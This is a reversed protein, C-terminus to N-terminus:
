VAFWFFYIALCHSRSIEIINHFLLIDFFILIKLLLHVIKYQGENLENSTISYSTSQLKQIM